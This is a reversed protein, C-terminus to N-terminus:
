NTRAKKRGPMRKKSSKRAIGVAEKKESKALMALRCPMNGPLPALPGPRSLLDALTWRSLVGIIAQQLELSAQHFACTVSVNRTVQCYAGVISGQCAEVVAFLTIEEPARSLQVGGKAGREARLIGARVLLGTVKALYTPSEEVAVAIRAPTLSGTGQNQGLYVLLRMAMLSTRTVM